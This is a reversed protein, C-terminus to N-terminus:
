GGMIRDLWGRKEQKVPVKEPTKEPELPAVDDAPDPHWLHGCAGCKYWKRKIGQRKDYQSQQCQPCVRWRASSRQAPM